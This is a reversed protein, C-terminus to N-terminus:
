EEASIAEAMEEISANIMESLGGILEAAKSYDGDAAIKSIGDIAFDFDDKLTSIQDNFQDEVSPQEAARIFRKM